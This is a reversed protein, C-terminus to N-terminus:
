GAHKWTNKKENNLLYILLNVSLLSSYISCVRLYIVVILIQKCLLYHNTVVQHNILHASLRTIELGESSVLSCRTM